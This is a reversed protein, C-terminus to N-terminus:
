RLAGGTGRPIRKGFKMCPCSGSPSCCDPPADDRGESVRAHRVSPTVCVRREFGRRGDDGCTHVVTERVTVGFRHEATVHRLPLM